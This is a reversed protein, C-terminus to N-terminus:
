PQSALGYLTVNANGQRYGTKQNILAMIGAFAPASASTGGFVVLNQTSNVNDSSYVLYGDHGAAALAVDPVHRKGDNPVGAINQWSPKALYLSKGGGSAWLATGGNSGSENWVVEPIYSLASGQDLPSTSSSWYLAPNATDAFQTGGVCTSYPSTCLGNVGLGHTATSASASDCGAAGSDGSSVLVTIGQAAAQQWLNSYFTVASAGMNAECQGYSLSIIDAVNNSVAYQASLGIGDTSDTSASIVFKIAAAPAVAGSWQLDLDSEGEDGPVRGPDSGNIIIQPPNAPLNMTSRFKQMDALVVNSRGLVAISRGAGDISQAYLPKLNYITHFDAAAMYHASGSTFNPKLQGKGHLPKSHFDHLSVIGSVVEALAKPIQPESANAIHIKGNRRYRHMNTRFAKRVQAVTGSFVISRRGATVEDVRLGHLILWDAIADVDQTAVGFHQAYDQPSLWKGFQPSSKDHLALLYADLAAAQTADPKLVLIMRELQLALEAAGIDDAVTAQPHRNGKLIVRVNDDVPQRIRVKAAVGKLFDHDAAHVCPTVLLSGTLAVLLLLGHVTAWM